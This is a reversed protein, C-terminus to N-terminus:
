LTVDVHFYRYGNIYIPVYGMVVAVSLQHYIENPFLNTQINLIICKCVQVYMYM